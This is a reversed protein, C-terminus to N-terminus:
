EHQESKQVEEVFNIAAKIEDPISDDNEDVIIATFGADAMRKIEDLDINIDEGNHAEKYREIQNMSVEYPSLVKDKEEEVVAPTVVQEEVKKKVTAKKTTKSKTTITKKRAM